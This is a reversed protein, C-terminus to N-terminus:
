IGLVIFFCSIANERARIDIPTNACFFSSFAAALAMLFCFKAAATAEIEAASAKIPLM